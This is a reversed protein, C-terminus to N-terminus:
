GTGLRYGVKRVGGEFSQFQIEAVDISITGGLFKATDGEKVWDSHFTDVKLITRGDEIALINLTHNLETNNKGVTSFQVSDGVNIWQVGAYPDYVPPAPKAMKTANDTTNLAQAETSNLCAGKWCGFECKEELMWSCYKDQYAKTSPTRCGYGEKCELTKCSNNEFNCGLPCTQKSKFTCNGEQHALVSTSICRWQEQCSTPINLNSGLSNNDSATTANEGSSTQNESLSLNSKDEVVPTAVTCGIVVIFLFFIFLFSVARM